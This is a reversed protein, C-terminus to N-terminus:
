RLAVGPYRWARRKLTGFYGQRQNIEQEEDCSLAHTLFVSESWRVESRGCHPCLIDVPQLQGSGDGNFENVQYPRRCRQNNCREIWM